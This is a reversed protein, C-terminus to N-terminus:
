DAGFTRAFAFVEGQIRAAVEGPAVVRVFWTRQADAQWISAVLMHQTPGKLHMLSGRYPGNEFTGALDSEAISTVPAMGIQGRWRNVNALMGGVEGPFVSIAVEVPGDADEILYTAERMPRREAVAQWGEPAKWPEAPASAAASAGAYPAGTAGAAREAPASDGPQGAIREVGKPVEHTQQEQESCGALSAMALAAVCFVSWVPRRTMDFGAM